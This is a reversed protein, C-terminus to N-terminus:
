HPIAWNWVRSTEPSIYMTRERLLLEEALTLPLTLLREEPLSASHMWESGMRDAPMKGARLTCIAGPAPWGGTPHRSSDRAQLPRKVGAKAAHADCRLVAPMCYTSEYVKPSLVWLRCQPIGQTTSSGHAKRFKPELATQICLARNSMRECPRSSCFPM